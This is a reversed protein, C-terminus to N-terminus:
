LISLLGREIAFRTRFTNPHSQADATHLRHMQRRWQCLHDGVACAGGTPELGSRNYLKYFNRSESHFHGWHPIGDYDEALAKMRDHFVANGSIGKVTWIEVHFSRNWQQMALLARSKGTFRLNIILILPETDRVHKAIKLLQNVFDLGKDQPFVYEYSEIFRELESHEDPASHPLKCHDQNTMIRYSCDVIPTDNTTPRLADTATNQLDDIISKGSIPGFDIHRILNILSVINQGIARDADPRGRRSLHTLLNDIINLLRDRDESSCFLICLLILGASSTLLGANDFIFEITEIIEKHSTEEEEETMCDGALPEYTTRWCQGTPNVVLEYFWPVEGDETLFRAKIDRCAEPWDLKDTEKKLLHQEGAEIIVSYIVGACGVSVLCSNFLEDDYALEICPDLLGNEILRHMKTPDTIPDTAPEIWWQHGGATVLHLARVFDSIPPLDPNAGHTGTSLAGVISQGNAGGLTPMALNLRDLVCNLKHIKIGAEVHVLREIINRNTPLVPTDDALIPLIDDKNRLAGPIVHTLRRDLHDTNLMVATGEPAVCPSYSWGTGQIGLQSNVAEAALM